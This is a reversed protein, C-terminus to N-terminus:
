IDVSPFSLRVLFKLLLLVNLSHRAEGFGAWLDGRVQVVKCYVVYDCCM